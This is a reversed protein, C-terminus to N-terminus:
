GGGERRPSLRNVNMDVPRRLREMVARLWFRSSLWNKLRENTTKAEEASPHLFFFFCSTSWISGLLQFLRLQLWVCTTWSEGPGHYGPHSKRNRLWSLLIRRMRAGESGALPATQPSEGKNDILFTYSALSDQYYTVDELIYALNVDVGVVGLLLNGFYCPRSVTMIFGPVLVLAPETLNGFRTLDATRSVNALDLGIGAREGDGLPDTYPLSFRALDMMRNPLNIYFRGVTTELNSLQNLVMMGGKVVPTVSAGSPCDRDSSREVGYKVWNQEALDRLFALEKLGTVGEPLLM